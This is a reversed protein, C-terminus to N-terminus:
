RLGQVIERAFDSLSEDRSGMVIVIDGQEARERIYPVIEGRKPIYVAEKGAKRMPEVVDRSSIDKPLVVVEGNV